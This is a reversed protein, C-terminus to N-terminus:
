DNLVHIEDVSQPSRYIWVTVDGESYEVRELSYLVGEFTISAPIKSGPSGFASSAETVHINQHTPKRTTTVDSKNLHLM